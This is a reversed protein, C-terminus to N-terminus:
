KRGRGRERETEHVQAALEAASTDGGARRPHDEREDRDEDHIEEGLLAQDLAAREATALSLLPWLPGIRGFSSM